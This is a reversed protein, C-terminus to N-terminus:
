GQRFPSEPFHGVLAEHIMARVHQSKHTRREVVIHHHGSFDLWGTRRWEPVSEFKMTSASRRRRFFSCFLAM